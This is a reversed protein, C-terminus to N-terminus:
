TLRSSGGLRDAIRTLGAAFSARTTAAFGIFFRNALPVGWRAWEAVNYVSHVVRTGEPDPFVSWEGRYWWGGQYALTHDGAEWNPLDERLVRWVQEVPATVVGSVETILKKRVARGDPRGPAPIKESM